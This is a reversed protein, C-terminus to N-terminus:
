RPWCSILPLCPVSRYPPLLSKERHSQMSTSEFITWLPLFCWRMIPIAPLELVPVGLFHTIIHPDVTIIHGDVTSQLVMGRDDDQAVELNSYFLRVLRTLVISACTYSYGLHYTQITEYISDLPPVMIESRVVNREAIVTHDM